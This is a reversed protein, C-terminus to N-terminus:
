REIPRDQEAQPDGPARGLVFASPGFPAWPPLQLRPRGERFIHIAKDMERLSGDRSASFAVPQMVGRDFRTAALALETAALQYEAMARAGPRGRHLRAWQRAQRRWRLSELMQIDLRTAVGAGEYTDSNDTILRVIRRRDAVMAILLGALVLLLILYVVAVRRAGADVSDDWMAHLAVAAVWGVGIAWVGQWGRRMAAYCVGLGIMSTFLPGWLPALLGRQVFASALAGLGTREAHVYAFLNAVLAFGLATMCAYVVGDHTGDLEGRRFRLLAVLVGGKLSEAVLAGGIAAALTTAVLRGSHPGLEPTTLARTGLLRGVLGQLAALAAGAGFVLVLLSVPEPELRDLYLVAAMVLPVPAVALALGVLTPEPGGRVVIALAVLVVLSLAALIAIFGVPVRGFRRAYPITKSGGPTMAAAYGDVRREAM